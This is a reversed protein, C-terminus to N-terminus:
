DCLVESIKQWRAPGDAKLRRGEGEESLDLYLASNPTLEALRDPWEVLCIGTEFADTLGTEIIEGPGTLRYLDAHWVEVGGLEYTQVLTFTPSPVDENLGQVAMLTKIVARAFHSKGAGVEGSLLVTDGPLLLPAIQEALCTTEREDPLFVSSSFRADSM